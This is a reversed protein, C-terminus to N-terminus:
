NNAQDPAPYGPPWAGSGPSPTCSAAARSGRRALWRALSRCRWSSRKTVRPLWWWEVESRVCLQLQFFLSSLFFSCCRTLWNSAKRFQIMKYVTQKNTVDKWLAELRPGMYMNDLFAFFPALFSVQRLNNFWITTNERLLFELIQEDFQSNIFPLKDM